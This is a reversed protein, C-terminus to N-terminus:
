RAPAALCRRIAVDRAFVVDHFSADLAIVRPELAHVTACDGTRAAAQARRTLQWADDQDIQQKTMPPGSTVDAVVYVGVSGLAIVGFGVDIPILTSKDDPLAAMAASTVLVGILAGALTLEARHMTRPGNRPGCGIAVVLVLVLAIARM